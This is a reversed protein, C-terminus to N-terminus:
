QTPFYFFIVDTEIYKSRHPGQHDKHGDVVYAASSEWQLPIAVNWAEKM